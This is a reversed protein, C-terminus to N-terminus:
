AAHALEAPGKLGCRKLAASMIRAILSAYSIGLMGAMIPLDSHHPHIGALPNIEMFVPEGAANCRLDARSADRCSLARYAELAVQAARQATADDVLRYSVLSEFNEKNRYSYIGADAQEGLLVEMVALSQADAGNGIIGVTFERGPLFPEIIVPQGFRDLLMRCTSDLQERNAVKCAPECGKGTGEALPKVFLPFGLLPNGVVRDIINPLAATDPVVAHPTVPVGVASVVAKTLAKDLTVGCTVSDSMVYPQDYAELLAPVQAERGRGSIGEAINFVIDWRDGAVLRSALARVNGVRDVAFGLQQLADALADITEVSDFEATAEESYGLARYDDRLDYTLGVRM